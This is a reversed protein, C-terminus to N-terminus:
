QNFDLGWIHGDPKVMAIVKVKFIWPWIHFKSYRLWFHGLQLSVSFLMNRNFEPGWIHDDSKVKATVKVMSNELDFTVKVKSWMCPRSCPYSNDWFVLASQCQVFPTPTPWEHGHSHGNPSWPWTYPDALYHGPHSWIDAHRRSM